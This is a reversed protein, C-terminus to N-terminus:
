LESKTKLSEKESVKKDSMLKPDPIDVKAIPDEPESQMKTNLTAENTKGASSDTENKMKAQRLKLEQDLETEINDHGFWKLVNKM